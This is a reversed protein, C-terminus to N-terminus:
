AGVRDLSIEYIEEADVVDLVRWGKRFVGGPMGRAPIIETLIDEAVPDYRFYKKGIFLLVSGLYVGQQQVVMRNKLTETDWVVTAEFRKTVDNEIIEFTKDCEFEQNGSNAFVKEWDEGFEDRLAM